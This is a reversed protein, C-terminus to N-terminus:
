INNKKLTELVIYIIASGFVANIPSIGPLFQSAFVGLVWAIVANWHVKKVKINELSAYKQRKNIFYDSIIIGGISPIISSLLTLWGVFNNYLVLAGLTGILGNFIVVHKKPIKTINSFGLGSAYLANDNTTWINLGLIIIAPIILGQKLMVESIDSQGLTSAGVAGFIFMLSNGIFFAIFTSIVGISKSKSFRSFDPTLTGGSIFSGICLSLGVALGLNNAPEIAFLESIGGISNVAGTVSYIGLLTIAPVSIMSLVTLSKIGFYATTTMLIGSLLLLINLDIGTAYHVPLSFMAVGVGFWGVQTIALIFSALYSGKEGFSYRALLHTSLGTSSGIYALAGTYLGLLLNGMLVALLFTQFKLGTGITGGAWMSASFFTFGLMIAFMPLFGKKSESPVTELAYDQDAHKQQSM